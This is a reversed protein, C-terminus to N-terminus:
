LNRMQQRAVCDRDKPSHRNFRLPLGFANSATGTNLSSKTQTSYKSHRSVYARKVAVMQGRFKAALVVGFSGSGLVEAPQEIVLEAPNIQWIGDAKLHQRHLLYFVLLVVLLAIPILIQLIFVGMQQCTSGIRVFGTKCRCTGKLTGM